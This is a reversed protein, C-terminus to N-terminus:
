KNEIEQQYYANMMEYFDNGYARTLSSKLFQFVPVGLNTGNECAPNCISWQHYNLATYEGIKAVRIPYLHCSIPKIFDIKEAHYANEIACTAINDKYAVFVCEGSAACTTESEDGDYTHFNNKALVQLGLPDMFPKIEEINKEIIDIESQLLPAGADGAVCCEGKCKNIACAFKKEFLDDSLMKDELIIM